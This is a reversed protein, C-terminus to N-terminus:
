VVCAGGRSAGLVGVLSCERLDFTLQFTPFGFCKVLCLKNWFGIESYSWYAHRKLM